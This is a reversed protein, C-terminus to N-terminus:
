NNEDNACTSVLSLCPRSPTRAGTVEVSEYPGQNSISCYASRSNQLNRIRRQLESVQKALYSHIGVPLSYVTVSVISHSFPTGKLATYPM